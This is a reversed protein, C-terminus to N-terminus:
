RDEKYLQTFSTDQVFIQHPKEPCAVITYEMDLPIIKM